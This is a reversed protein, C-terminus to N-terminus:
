VVAGDDWGSDAPPGEKVRWILAAAGGIIALVALWAFEGGEVNTALVLLGGLIGVLALVTVLHLRPLPPPSPPVYHEEVDQGEDVVFDAYRDDYGDDPGALAPPPAATAASSESLDEAVPWPPVPATSPTQLSVLVQQWAADLEVEAPSQLSASPHPMAASGVGRGSEGAAGAESSMLDSARTARTEDVYLRDSPHAPLRLELYGGRAAPTPAVYAAIGEERLTHLLAEAVRPDLDGVAVYRAARLGNDRTGSRPGDGHEVM